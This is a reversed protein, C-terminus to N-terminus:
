RQRRREADRNRDTLLVAGAMALKLALSQTETSGKAGSWLPEIMSPQAKPKNAAVQVPGETFPNAAM